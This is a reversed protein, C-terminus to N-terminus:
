ILGVVPEGTADEWPEQDVLEFGCEELVRRSGANHEAVSAYLPRISEVKLFEELARTAIGRGWFVAGIWYEVERRGDRPFGVSNGTIKGTALIAKAEVEQNALTAHWHAVFSSHDRAPFAAMRNAECDLRHEYFADVDNATVARHTVDLTQENLAENTM